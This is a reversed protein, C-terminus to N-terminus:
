LGALNIFDNFFKSFIKSPRGAGGGLGCQMFPQCVRLSTEGFHSLMEMNTWFVMPRVMTLLERLALMEGLVLMEGLALLKNGVIL